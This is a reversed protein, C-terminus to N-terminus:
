EFAGFLSQVLTAGLWDRNQTQLRFVRASSAEVLHLPREQARKM